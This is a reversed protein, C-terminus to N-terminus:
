EVIVSLEFVDGQKTAAAATDVVIFHDGAALNTLELRSKSSRPEPIDDSCMCTGEACTSPQNGCGKDLYYLVTDFNTFDNETTLTVKSAASALKLKVVSDVEATSDTGCSPPIDWLSYLRLQGRVSSIAPPQLVIAANCAQTRATNTAICTYNASSASSKACVSGTACRKFVPDCTGGATVVPTTTLNATKEASTRGGQDTVTIRLSDVAQTFDLSSDITVLFTAELPNPTISGSVESVVNPQEESGVDYTTAVGSKFLRIKYSAVDGNLDKGRILIRQGLDSDNYYGVDSLTPADSGPKTPEVPVYVFADPVSADKAGAEAAADRAGAEERPVTADRPTSADVDGASGDKKTGGDGAEKAPPCASLLSTALAAFITRKLVSSTKPKHTTSM